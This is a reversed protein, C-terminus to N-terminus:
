FNFPSGFRGGCGDGKLRSGVRGVEKERMKSFGLVNQVEMKDQKRRVTMPTLDCIKVEEGEVMLLWWGQREDKWQRFCSGINRRKLFQRYKGKWKQFQGQVMQIEM